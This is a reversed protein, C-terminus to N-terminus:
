GTAAPRRYSGFGYVAILFPLALTLVIGLGLSFTDVVVEYLSLLAIAYLAVRFRRGAPPGRLLGLLAAALVGIVFGGIAVGPFGFDIYYDGPATPPRGAGLEEKWVVRRFEIDGGDPKNPDITRPIFSRVGDLLFQGHEFHRDKPFITTAYLVHDFSTIDNIVVRPDLTHDWAREAARSLSEEGAAQRFVVFSSVFALMLVFAVALERRRFPRWLYHVIVGLALLTIFVRARSGAITSFACLAAVSLGLGCWEARSQPRRWAAWVLVAAFGFGSLFFLVFSESLAAQENSAKELSAAPGGARAIIAVQAALGLALSLGVAVRLNIVERSRGLKSLWSELPRSLGAFYGILLTVLFLACVGLAKAMAPELPEDLRGVYLAVEQSELLVLSAVPDKAFFGSYLDRWELILQLPRAVFLLSCIAALIPLPEFFRGAAVAWIVVPITALACIFLWLWAVPASVASIVGAGILAVAVFAAAWAIKDGPARAGLQRPDRLVDATRV